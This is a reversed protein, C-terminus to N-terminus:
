YFFLIYIIKPLINFFSDSLLSSVDNIVFEDQDLMLERKIKQKNEINFKIYNCLNSISTNERIFRDGLKDNMEKYTNDAKTKVDQIM